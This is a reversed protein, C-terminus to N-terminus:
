DKIISVLFKWEQNCLWKDFQEECNDKNCMMGIDDHEMFYKQLVEINDEIYQENIEQLLEGTSNKEYM